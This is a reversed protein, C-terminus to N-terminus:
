RAGAGGPVPEDDGFAITEFAFLSAGPDRWATEPLGAKKSLHGLLEEASWGTEVMVEPLFLASGVPHRLSVGDPGRRIEAPSAISRDPFLISVHIGLLPIEGIEVPPFRPDEYAAAVAYRATTEFLPADARITGICGRLENDADHLTVFLGRPRLLLTGDIPVGAARWEEASADLM